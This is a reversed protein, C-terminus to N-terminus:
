SIYADTKSFLVPLFLDDFELINCDGGIMKGEYIILNLFANYGTNEIKYTYLLAGKGMYPCLDFGCEKQMKNYENFEATEKDPIYIKKVTESSKDVSWGLYEACRVRDGTDDLNYLNATKIFQKTVVRCGFVFVVSLIVIYIIRTRNEKLFEKM